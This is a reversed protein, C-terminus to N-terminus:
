RLYNKISNDFLSTTMTAALKTTSIIEKKSNDLITQKIQPLMTFVALTILILIIGFIFLIKNKISLNNIFM